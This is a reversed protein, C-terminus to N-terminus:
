WLAPKRAPSCNEVALRQGSDLREALMEEIPKRTAIDKVDM